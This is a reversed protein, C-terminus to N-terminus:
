ADEDSKFFDEFWERMVKFDAVDAMQIVQKDVECLSSLVETIADIADKDVNKVFTRLDMVRPRRATLTTVTGGGRVAIPFQLEFTRTTPTTM